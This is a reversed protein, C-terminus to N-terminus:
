NIQFFYNRVAESIQNGWLLVILFSYILSPAFPIGEVGLSKTRLISQLYFEYDSIQRYEFSKVTGNEVSFYCDIYCDISLNSINNVKKDEEIKQIVSETVNINLTLKGSQLQLINNKKDIDSLLFTHKIIQNNEYEEYLSPNIVESLRLKMVFPKKKLADELKITVKAIKKNKMYIQYFFLQYGAYLVLGLGCSIFFMIFLSQYSGLLLFVWALIKVDGMGFVDFRYDGYLLFGGIKNFIIFGFYIVFFGILGYKFDPLSIFLDIKYIYTNVFLLGMTILILFKLYTDYILHIMVDILLIPILFMLLIFIFILNSLSLEINHMIFVFIIGSFLEVLPYRMHIKEKCNTCKGKQFIYSLLPILSYWKLSQKCSPCYSRSTTWIPEVYAYRYILMNTYSGIITGIIFYFIYLLIEM